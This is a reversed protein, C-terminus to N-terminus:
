QTTRNFGKYYLFRVHPELLRVIESLLAHCIYWYVYIRTHEVFSEWEDDYDDRKRSLFSWGTTFSNENEDVDLAAFPSFANTFLFLSSLNIVFESNGFRYAEFLSYLLAGVYCLFAISTEIAQVSVAM